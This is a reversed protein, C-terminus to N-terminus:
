RDQAISSSRISVNELPRRRNYPFVIMRDFLIGCHLVKETAMAVHGRRKEYETSCSTQVHRTRFFKHFFNM